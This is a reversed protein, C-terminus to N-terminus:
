EAAPAAKLLEDYSMAKEVVKAAAAVKEVVTDELVAAEVSALQDRNGYYWEIVEEPQQYTSAVEEVMERVKAPDAKLESSRVIEALILGLSVRRKAQDQFLEAPLMSTDLQQGPAMGFQSMMQRRLVDIEGDILAKPVDFAHAALLADMIQTKVKNRVAQRLEREMNKRVEVRFTDVDGTVGFRAFFEATLEAPKRASVKNVKVKFEVAAGKLDEKHYDEPFTLSLTKEEGASMGVIGDEFGPIMRNSGLVLDTGQASGGEFAVGDRTGEFDINVLDDQQAARAAEEWTGQQKRLTDIMTDVDAETVSAVPKEVEFGSFDGLVVDPYVEFTAVFELDRGPELSKPEISPQGAPRLNQQQVAEYFSQGLLDGIVERRANDGLRQEVVKLPVKGPRFGKIRVTRAAQQLKAQVALEVREAPVGITLRRELGSTTELSVQM